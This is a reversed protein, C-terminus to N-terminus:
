VEGSVRRNREASLGTTLEAKSDFIIFQNDPVKRFRVIDGFYFLSRLLADILFPQSLFLTGLADVSLLSLDWISQLLLRAPPLLM